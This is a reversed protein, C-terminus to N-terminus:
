YWRLTMADLSTVCRSAGHTPRALTSEEIACSACIRRPLKHGCCAEFPDVEFPDVWSSAFVQLGTTAGALTPLGCHIAEMAAHISLRTFGGSKRGKTYQSPSDVRCSRMFNTAYRRRWAPSLKFVQLIKTAISLAPDSKQRAGCDLHQSVTAPLTMHWTASPRQRAGCNLDRSATAPLIMQWTADSRQRVGCDLDQSISAPLITHWTAGSKEPAACDLDRSVNAPLIKNWTAGAPLIM